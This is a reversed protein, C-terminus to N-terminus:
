SQTWSRQEQCKRAVTAVFKPGLKEQLYFDFEQLTPTVDLQDFCFVYTFIKGNPSVGVPLVTETIM